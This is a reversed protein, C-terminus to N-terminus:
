QSAKTVYGSDTAYGRPIKDDKWKRIYINASRKELKEYDWGVREVIGQKYECEVRDRCKWTSMYVHSGMRMTTIDKAM